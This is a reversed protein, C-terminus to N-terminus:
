AEQEPRRRYYAYLEDRAADLHSIIDTLEQTREPQERRVEAIIDIVTTVRPIHDICCAQRLRFELDTGLM